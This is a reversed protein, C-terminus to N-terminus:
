QLNKIIYFLASGHGIEDEYDETEQVKGHKDIILGFGKIDDKEFEPHTSMVGSDLIAIKIM